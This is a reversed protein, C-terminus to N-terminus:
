LRLIQQPSIPISSCAFLIIYKRLHASVSFYIVAAANKFIYEKAVSCM